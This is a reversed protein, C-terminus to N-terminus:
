FYAEQIGDGSSTKTPSGGDRPHIGQWGNAIAEQLCDYMAGVDTGCYTVLQRCLYQVGRETRMPHAKRVERAPDYFDKLLLYLSNKERATWSPAAIQNIHDVLVVSFEQDSLPAAKHPREKKKKEKKDKSSIDKNLETPNEPSPNESSPNESSPFDLSPEVTTPNESLPQPCEHIVYDNGAFSGDPNHTQQRTVYGAKELEVVAARIADKGERCIAALGGLTYDWGDPLSLMLSLLGKAKLTLQQDRLHVNSMTTYNSNKEVRCVAM